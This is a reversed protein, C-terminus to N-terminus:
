TGNYEESLYGQERSANDQRIGFTFVGLLVGAGRMFAEAAWFEAARGLGVVKEVVALRM